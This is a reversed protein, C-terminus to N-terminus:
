PFHRRALAARILPGAIPEVAAAATRTSFARSGSHVPAPRHSEDPRPPCGDVPARGFAGSAFFAAANVLRQKLHMGAM